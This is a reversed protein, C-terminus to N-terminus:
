YNRNGEASMTFTLRVTRGAYHHGSKKNGRIYKAHTPFTL